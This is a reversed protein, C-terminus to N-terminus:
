AVSFVLAITTAVRSGLRIDCMHGEWSPDSPRCRCLYRNQYENREVQCAIHLSCRRTLHASTGLNGHQRRVAVIMGRNTRLHRLSFPPWSPTTGPAAKVRPMM